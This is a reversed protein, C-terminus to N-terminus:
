KNKVTTKRLIIWQQIITLINTMTWYLILGAAFPALIVTIFLPFFAFIKKQIPDTMPSPNLKQQLFMTIGMLLPLLGIELFSPVNFPLLGFLNFITVPDKASLDEWIWIFPAHRMSIDLLLLKYLSFFIPIQVLIPLCGSAPNIGESKYLKMLSKQLEQKDNKHLEKLRNMEPQLVKMKGMSKFAYQNLPFFVIRVLITLLIIAYGYNGSFIFFYELIFFMPKVLWYLIGWNIVLDFKEIKESEAYGDIDRVTKAGIISKVNNEILSNPELMLGESDIYSARYKNKYDIDLRFPRDSPPIISTVWYKDGIAIFGKDSNKSYSKEDIEDYDIEKLEEDSVTVFGEHLIYFDTLDEPITNRHLYAYPYLKYKKDTKNIIKQKINFLYKEDLSIIREFRLGQQNEYYISVPNNPTLKSNGSVTWETDLNPTNINEDSSVWGTNFIYGDKINIPNLLIIKEKGNLVKNYNKFTFDDIAGGNSLSISGFINENEFLIRNSKNIADERSIEQIEQNESLKPAEDNKSIEKQNKEIQQIEEPPPSFFLGYLIIVAASLSIAAIVNKTDM